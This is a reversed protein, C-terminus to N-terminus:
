GDGRHALAGSLSAEQLMPGFVPDDHRHIFDRLNVRGSRLAELKGPSAALSAQQAQREPSLSNFWAEGTMITRPRGVVIMVSTCRGSWHEDVRPVPTGGDRESDWIVDGSQAVCSMCTRMDLAAVRVIQSAIDVNAQQHIATADRYSTMQVTRLLNNAVHAPLNHTIRRIEGAARLPNWGRVIGMIAQNRVVGIVDDGYRAILNGWAESEVYGVLRAVAEPDPTNWQVGIRALQTDTMGPLALQRQIRGAADIATRTARRAAPTLLAADGRLTDDLDAVLARLVANDPQLREGAEALREAEARLENLRREILGTSTSSGVAQLVSGTAQDYGRDLLGTILDVVTGRQPNRTTV